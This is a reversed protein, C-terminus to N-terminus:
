KKYEANAENIAKIKPLMEAMREGHTSAKGYKSQQYIKKAELQRRREQERKAVAKRLQKKETRKYQKKTPPLSAPAWFPSTSYGGSGLASTAQTYTLSASGALSYPNSASEDQAPPRLSEPLPSGHKSAEVQMDTITEVIPVNYLTAVATLDPGVHGGVLAVIQAYEARFGDPHVQLDGWGVVAGLVDGGERIGKPEFFANMGCHCGHHPAKHPSDIDGGYSSYTRMYSGPQCVAKNVGPRWPKSYNLPSLVWDDLRWRRYGVVAESFLPTDVQKPVVLLKHEKISSSLWRDLIFSLRNTEIAYAINTHSLIHFTPEFGDSRLELKYGASGRSIEFSLGQAESYHGWVEEIASQLDM